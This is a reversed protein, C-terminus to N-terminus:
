HPQPPTSKNMEERIEAASLARSWIRVEDISGWFNRSPEHSNGIRVPATDEGGPLREAIVTNGINEGNLWYRHVGDDVQAVVHQWTNLRLRKQSNSGVFNGVSLHLSGDSVTYFSYSRPLNGKTIIAQWTANNPGHFRRPYIWAMVTVNRDVTLHDYHDIEVHDNVGDFELAKGFKGNVVQPGGILEASIFGHDSNGRTFQNWFFEDFGQRLILTFDSKPPVDKDPPTVTVVADPPVIPPPDVPEETDCGIIVSFFLAGYLCICLTLPKM